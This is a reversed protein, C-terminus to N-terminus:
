KTPLKIRSYYGAVNDKVVLEFPINRRYYGGKANAEEIALQSGQLMKVGLVEEHSKGGTAASVTSTIPGIFGFKVTKLGVPEPIGRGAGAYEMQLLFFEKYPKVGGYPEVDTPTSAYNQESKLKIDPIGYAGAADIRRLVEATDPDILAALRPDM